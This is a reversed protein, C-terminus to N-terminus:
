AREVAADSGPRVASKASSYLACRLLHWRQPDSSAQAWLWLPRRERPDRLLLLAARQLDLRVEVRTGDDFSEGGAERVGWCAGDWVLQRARQQRWFRLLAVGTLLLTPLLVASALGRAAQPQVLVIAVLLAGALWLALLGRGLAPTRGVPHSVAPADTM